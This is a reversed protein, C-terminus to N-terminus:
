EEWSVFGLISSTEEQTTKLCFDLPLLEERLQDATSSEM